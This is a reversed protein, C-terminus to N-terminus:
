WGFVLKLPILVAMGSVITGLVDGRWYYWASGVLAAYIRADEFTAILHDQAMLIEPVVVASLAALPAYRLGRKFWEPMSMEREAIFFFSRCAVTVIGMGVFLILLHWDNM